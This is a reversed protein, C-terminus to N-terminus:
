IISKSAVKSTVSGVAEYPGTHVDNQSERTVKHFISTIKKLILGISIATTPQEQVDITVVNISHSDNEELYLFTSCQIM